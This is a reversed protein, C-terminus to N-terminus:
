LYKKIDFGSLNEFVNKVSIEEPEGPPNISVVDCGLKECGIGKKGCLALVRRGRARRLIGSVAKGYLTQSDICGEGTIVLDAPINDYNYMDLVFDIGSIIEAGLFAAAFFGLGGSAGSGPVFAVNFHGSIVAFNYLGKDLIEVDTRDAGKQPAYVFAAGNKGFLPNQVDSVATFVCSKVIEDMEGFIETMDKLVAGCPFIKRKGSKYFSFGLASLAGIGADCTGSGGLGLFIREAGNKCADLIMQGVGISSSSMVDLNTKDLGVAQATEIYANKGHMFYYVTKRRGFLDTISVEKRETEPYVLAFVEATGEGGDGLPMKIIEADPVETSIKKALIDCIEEARASGKFSDPAIIIKM